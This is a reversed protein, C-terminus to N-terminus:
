EELSVAERSDKIDITQVAKNLFEAGRGGDPESQAATIIAHKNAKAGFTNKYNEQEKIRQITKYDKRPMKMLVEFGHTGRVVRGDQERFGIEHAPVALDDATVYVWGKEAQMEWMRADSIQSNVTRVEWQDPDKLPIPRSGASFISGSKIRREVVSIERKKAAM